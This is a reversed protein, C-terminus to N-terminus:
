FDKKQGNKEEERGKEGAERDNYLSFAGSIGSSKLKKRM